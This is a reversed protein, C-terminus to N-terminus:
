HGSVPRTAAGDIVHTKSDQLFAAVTFSALDAGHALPLTVEGSQAASAGAPLTLAKVLGRVVHNDHLTATANEGGRVSTTLGNETVAVWLDLPDQVPRTLHATVKVKLSGDSKRSPPSSVTVDDVTVVGDPRDGLAQDIQQRVDAEQNGVCQTRGNVVLQPTYVQNVRFEQAYGEQRVTWDHSSFPDVWGQHDWYDVHFALPIVESAMKPDSMLRNLLRDAPPCSSCGQSTFLEVVIPAPTGAASAATQPTANPDAATAAAAATILALLAVLAVIALGIPSTHKYYGKM